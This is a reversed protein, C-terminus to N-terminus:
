PRRRLADEFLRQLRSADEQSLASTGRDAGRDIAEIRDLEAQAFALHNRTAHRTKWARVITWANAGDLPPIPLLNVMALWANTQMFVSVLETGVRSVPGGTLIVVGFAVVLLAAQALVGGWAVIARQWPTAQGEWRCEGGFGHVDISVVRLRYRLVVAAHGLEHVLILVVFAVWAAPAFRFGTFFLIGLLVSWHVRIPAGRIRGVEFFGAQFM